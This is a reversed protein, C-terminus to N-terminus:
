IKKGVFSISLIWRKGSEHRVELYFWRPPFNDVAAQHEMIFPLTFHCVSFRHCDEEYKRQNSLTDFPQDVAQSRRVSGWPDHRMDHNLSRDNVPFKLCSFQYLSMTDAIQARTREECDWEGGTSM